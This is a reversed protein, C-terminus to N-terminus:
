FTTKLEHVTYIYEGVLDGEYNDSVQETEEGDEGIQVVAWEADFTEEAYRMLEYHCKVDDYTEYWKVDSYQFTMIPDEKHPAEDTDWTWEAFSKDDNFNDAISGGHAKALVVFRERDELSKFKIIGAVDSRYGM